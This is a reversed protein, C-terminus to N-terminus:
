LSKIRIINDNGIMKNGASMYSDGATISNQFLFLGGVYETWLPRLRAENSQLISSNTTGLNKMGMAIKSGQFTNESEIDKLINGSIPNRLTIRTYGHLKAM